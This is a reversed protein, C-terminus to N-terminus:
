SIINLGKQQHDKKLLPQTNRWNFAEKLQEDDSVVFMGIGKVHDIEINEWNM